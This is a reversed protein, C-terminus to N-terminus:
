CEGGVERTQRRDAYRWVDGTFVILGSRTGHPQSRDSLLVHGPDVQPAAPTPVEEREISTIRSHPHVM